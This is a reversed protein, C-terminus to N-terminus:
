NLSAHLLDLINLVDLVNLINLVDLVDLVDLVNLSNPVDLVNLATKFYMFLIQRCVSASSFLGLPLYPRLQLTINVLFVFFYNFLHPSRTTLPVSHLGTAPIKDVRCRNRPLKFSM